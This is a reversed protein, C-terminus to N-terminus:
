RPIILEQGPHIMDPNDLKDRNAEFIRMYANADGYFRQAIASLTDGSQVVYTENSSVPAAPESAPQEEAVAAPQENSPAFVPEPTAPQSAAAESTPPNWGPTEERRKQIEEVKEDFSKGKGFGLGRGIKKLVM